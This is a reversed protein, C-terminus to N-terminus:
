RLSPYESAHLFAQRLICRYCFLAGFNSFCGSFVYEGKPQATFSVSTGELVQSASPNMVVSGGEPPEVTTTVNYYVEQKCSVLLIVFLLNIYRLHKM